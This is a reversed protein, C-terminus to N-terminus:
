AALRLSELRLKNYTFRKLTIELTHYFPTNQPKHSNILSTKQTSYGKTIKKVCIIQESHMINTPLIRILVKSFM